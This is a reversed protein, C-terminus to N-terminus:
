PRLYRAHEANMAKSSGSLPGALMSTAIFNFEGLM